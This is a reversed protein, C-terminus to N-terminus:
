TGAVDSENGDTDKLNINFPKIIPPAFLKPASDPTDIKVPEERVKPTPKVTQPCVYKV